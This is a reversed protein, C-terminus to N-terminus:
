RACSVEHCAPPSQAVLVAQRPDCGKADGPAAFCDNCTMNNLNRPQSVYHLNYWCAKLLMDCSTDSGENWPKGSLSSSLPTPPSGRSVSPSCKKVYQIFIKSDYMAKLSQEFYLNPRFIQLLHTTKPMGNGFPSKHIQRRTQTRKPHFISNARLISWDKELSQTSSSQLLIDHRCSISTCLPM